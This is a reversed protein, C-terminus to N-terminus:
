ELVAQVRGRAAGLKLMIGNCLHQLDVAHMPTEGFLDVYCRAAEGTETNRGVLYLGDPSDPGSGKQFEMRMEVTV